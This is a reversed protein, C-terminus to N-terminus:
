AGRGIAQALGCRHVRGRHALARSEWRLTPGFTTAGLYGSVSVEACRRMPAPEEAWPIRFFRGASKVFIPRPPEAAPADAELQAEVHLSGPRAGVRATWAEAEAEFTFAGRRIPYRVLFASMWRVLAHDLDCCIAFWSPAGRHVVGIRWLAEGYDFGPGPVGRLAIGRMEFLLLDVTVRDGSVIELEFPSAGVLRRAEDAAITARLEITVAETGRLEFRM